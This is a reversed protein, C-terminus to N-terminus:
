RELAGELILRVDDPRGSSRGWTDVARDWEDWRGEDLAAYIDSKLQEIEARLHGVDKTHASRWNEVDAWAENVDRELESVRARLRKCAHRAAWRIRLPIRAPGTVHEGKWWAIANGKLRGWEAMVWWVPMERRWPNRVTM